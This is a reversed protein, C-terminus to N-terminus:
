FQRPSIVDRQYSFTYRIGIEHSGGKYKGLPSLDFDYSYAMGIQANLQVELIAVLTNQNRYGAALSIREKLKLELSCDAQVKRGPQYKLLVSPSLTFRPNLKFTYGGTLHFINKSGKYAVHYDGTNDDMERSLLLPVSFGIFYDRTFYYTGISVNPIVDTEPENLLLMDGGASSVLDNWAANFITAGLGLGLSLRANSLEISYAYDAMVNTEKFIGMSGKDVFLGLGMRDSHIPAHASVSYNKTGTEFGTWQDRYLATISLADQSGAFAPNIILKDFNHLTSVYKIQATLFVPMFSIFIFLIIRNM